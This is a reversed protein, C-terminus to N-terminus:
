KEIGQPFDSKRTERKGGMGAVGEIVRKSRARRAAEMSQGHIARATAQETWAKRDGHKPWSNSTGDSARDVSQPRWAKAM